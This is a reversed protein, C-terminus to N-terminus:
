RGLEAGDRDTAQLDPFPDENREIWSRLESELEKKRGAYGADSALNVLEEPDNKLDYLEEGHLTYQNFKFEPTRIMRIPNVWKQKSYYQGIVYERNKTEGGTLLPKLSRGHREEPELGAFELITPALDTNVGQYDTVRRPAIGGCAQPVRILLPVRVMHEYLFPGKYILRHHTDMDGHDSSVVLVTNEWVGSRKLAQVVKGLHDDFLRVKGRYYEHYWEWLKQESDWIVTGQDETM